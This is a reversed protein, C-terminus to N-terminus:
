SVPVLEGSAARVGLVYGALSCLRANSEGQALCRDAVPLLASMAPTDSQVPEHKAFGAVFGADFSIAPTTEGSQLVITSLAGDRGARTMVTVCYAGVSLTHFGAARLRAIWAPIGGTACSSRRAAITEPSLDQLVYDRDSQPSANAAPVFAVFGAVIAAVAARRGIGTM